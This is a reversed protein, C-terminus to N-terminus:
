PAPVRHEAEHGFEVFHARIGGLTRPSSLPPLAVRHSRNKQCDAYRLHLNGGHHFINLTSSFPPLAVRHARNKQFDAYRLHMDPFDMSMRTM